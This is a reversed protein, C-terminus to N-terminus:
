RTWPTCGAAADVVMLVATAESLAVAAQKLIERPIREREDPLIGGTDALRFRKGNWDVQGYLRDRTIGPEVALHV